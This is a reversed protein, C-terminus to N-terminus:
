QVLQYILLGKFALIVQRIYSAEEVGNSMYFYDAIGNQYTIETTVIQWDIHAEVRVSDVDQFASVADTSNLFSYFADVEEQNTGFDSQGCSSIFPLLLLLSLVAKKLLCM